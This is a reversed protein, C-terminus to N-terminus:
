IGQGPIYENIIVQDPMEIFISDSHLKNYLENIWYPMEGLHYSAVVSRATYDYKYGYHQTRRQLDLNWFQSDIFKLLEDEYEASIYNSIYTLGPINISENFLCSQSM